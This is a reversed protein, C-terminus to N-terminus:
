FSGRLMVVSAEPSVLPSVGVTVSTSGKPAVLWLAFGGAALVGGAIFLGSSIDGATRADNRLAYAAPPCINNANCGNPQANSESNKHGAIVAFVAGLGLGVVGAGGVLLGSTGLPSKRAPPPALPPEVPPPPPPPGDELAPIRVSVIAGSAVTTLDSSWPKKHAASAVIHHRGAEVPLPVGLSGAGFEVDDIKVHLDGPPTGDMSLSLKPVVADLRALESKVHTLRDDHQTEALNQAKQWYGRANVMHGLKEECEALRALTGVKADLRASEALKPCASKYDGAKMLDRGANFLDTAAGAAEQAGAPSTVALAFLVAAVFRVGARMM